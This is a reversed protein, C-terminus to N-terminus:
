VIMQIQCARQGFSGAKLLRMTCANRTSGSSGTLEECLSQYTKAAFPRDKNDRLPLLIEILYMENLLEDRM